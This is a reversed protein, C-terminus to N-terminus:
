AAAKQKFFNKIVQAIFEVQDDQLEPYSPLTVIQDGIMDTVSLDGRRCDKFLTFGHNPQWHIGTDVGNEALYAMFAERQGGLVRIVYIFPMIDAANKVPKVIGDIGELARDYTDFMRQRNAYIDDIKNMQQIGIAGHLNALHYRYGPGTVDYRWGRQNQDLVAQNQEQGLLRMHRLRQGQDEDRVIVAGGDICTINKVPDFSFTVVDGFSGIKKGDYSSGFSHAADYLVPVSHRDAIKKVADFDSLACGYDICIIAKTKETILDEFKDPDITLTDEKVDCFVPQAGLARIMQIDSINNFSPTIVEDGAGVSCLELGLHVASTGTNVAVVQWPAIGIFDALKQEFEKVYSGPGLWRLELAERAIDMEEDTFYPLFVPINSM